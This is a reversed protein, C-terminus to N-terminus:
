ETSVPIKKGKAKEEETKPILVTLVGNKFTAKVKKTDVGAPVPIVRRFSGYKREMHYYGEGKDEKEEKKEGQLTLANDTLLVEVDKEEMGPLEANVTIMKSDEKVDISPSFFRREGTTQFPALDFDRSFDDFLRNIEKQFAYLPHEEKYQSLAGTRRWVSPLFEKFPM